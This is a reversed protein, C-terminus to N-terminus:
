QATDYIHPLSVTTCTVLPVELSFMLAGKAAALFTL